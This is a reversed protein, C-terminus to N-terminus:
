LKKLRDVISAKLAQGELPVEVLQPPRVHQLAEAEIMALKTAVEASHQGRFELPTNPPEALGLRMRMTIEEQHTLDAQRMAKKVDRRTITRSTETTTTKSHRSM